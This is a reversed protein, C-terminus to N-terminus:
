VDIRPLAHRVLKGHRAWLWSGTIPEASDGANLCLSLEYVSRGYVRGVPDADERGEPAFTRGYRGFLWYIGPFFWM